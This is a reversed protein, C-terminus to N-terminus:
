PRGDPKILQEQGDGNKLKMLTSPGEALIQVYTPNAEGGLVQGAGRETAAIKVNPRGKSTILRLLVTEPYGTTGDPMKFTPDAPLVSISARVRGKDDVIELARGRLVPAVREAGEAVVARTQGLSFVLLLLNLATLALPFRHAKM